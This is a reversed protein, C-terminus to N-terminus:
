FRVHGHGHRILDRIPYPHVVLVIMEYSPRTNVLSRGILNNNQDDVRIGDAVQYSVSVPVDTKSRRGAAPVEDKVPREKSPSGNRERLARKAANQLTEPETIFQEPRPPPPLPAGESEEYRFAVGHQLTGLRIIDGHCVERWGGTFHDDGVFSGFRSGSGDAGRDHLVAGGGDLLEVEAHYGSVSRPLAQVDNDEARGLSTTRKRLTLPQGANDGLPRLFSPM